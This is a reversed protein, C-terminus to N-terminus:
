SVVAVGSAARPPELAHPRHGLLTLACSLGTSCGAPRRLRRLRAPHTAGPAVAIFHPARVGGACEIAALLVSWERPTSRDGPRYSLALPIWCLGITSAQSPPM